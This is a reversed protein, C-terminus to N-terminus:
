TRDNNIVELIEDLRNKYTHYKKIKEYGNKAIEMREKEHSLYYEVKTMLDEYSDYYVFDEDPIFYDLFDTQYNTLLFGGSGMIDFIRLPMGSRIAKLTMNLNIKSSHYIFSAEKKAGALGRNEILPLSPTKKLTYLVVRYKQSLMELIEQREMVTVYKALLDNACHKKFTMFSNERMEAPAVEYLKDVIEQTLMDELIFDGYIRKQAQMLGDVYGKTQEDLLALKKYVLHKNESYTSGIFSIPVTYIEREEDNMIYSDFRSVASALPLYYLTNIGMGKLELYEAKDFMFIYNYPSVVSCHYLTALPSDYVWAVYKVQCLNCAISVIPFYNFTFVFDYKKDRIYEIIRRQEDENEWIGHKRDFWYGDIEFNRRRFEEIIDQAGFSEWMIYLVRM